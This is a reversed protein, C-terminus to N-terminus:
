NLHFFFDDFRKPLYLQLPWFLALTLPRATRNHSIATIKHSEIKRRQLICSVAKRSISGTGADTLISYFSTPKTDLTSELASFTM